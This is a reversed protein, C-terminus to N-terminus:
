EFDIFYMTVQDAIRQFEGRRAPDADDNGAAPPVAGDGGRAPDVVATRADGGFMERMQSPPKIAGIGPAAAGGAPGSKAKCDHLMNHFPVPGLKINGASKALSGRDGNYKWGIRLCGGVNSTM